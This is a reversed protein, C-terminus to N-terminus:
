LQVERVMGTSHDGAMPMCGIRCATHIGETLKFSVKRIAGNGANLILGDQMMGIHQKHM